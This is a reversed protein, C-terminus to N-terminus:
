DPPPAPLWLEAYQAPDDDYPFRPSLARVAAAMASREIAVM